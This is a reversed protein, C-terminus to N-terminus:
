PSARAGPRHRGSQLCGGRAGACAAVPATSRGPSARKPGDGGTPPWRGPGSRAPRPWPRPRTPGRRPAGTRWAACCTM